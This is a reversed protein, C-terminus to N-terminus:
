LVCEALYLGFMLASLADSPLSSSRGTNEGRTRRVHTRGEGAKEETKVARLSVARRSANKTAETVAPTAM